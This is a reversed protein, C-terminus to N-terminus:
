VDAGRRVLAIAISKGGGGAHLRWGPFDSFEVETFREAGDFGLIAVPCGSDSETSAEVYAREKPDIFFCVADGDGAVMYGTEHALEVDGQTLVRLRTEKMTDRQSDRLRAVLDPKCERLRQAALRILMYATRDGVAMITLETALCDLADGLTKDSDNATSNSM